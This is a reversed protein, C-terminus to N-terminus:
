AATIGYLTATTGSGLTIIGDLSIKISNIAATSRWMSIRSVVLSGGNGGKSLVTKYTTTNAYNMIHAITNSQSTALWGIYCVTGNSERGSFASSGDGYLNTQSYNSGTDSNFQLNPGYNTSITGSIVLVLDTYTAPISSFTISTQASGLTTTAIPEYTPGAAM